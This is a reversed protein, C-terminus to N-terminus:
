KKRSSYFVLVTTEARLSIVIYQIHPNFLLELHAMTVAAGVLLELTVDINNPM